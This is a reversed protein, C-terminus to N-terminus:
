SVVVTTQGLSQNTSRYVYYNETYGSANTVSVTQAAEFGGDFGGVKFTCAGYPSRTPCCFYIYQGTGANVTFTKAKTGSLQKNALGTVLASTPNNAVSSVGWYLNPYFHFTVTKSGISTSLTYTVQHTTENDTATVTEGTSSVDKTVNNLKLSSPTAIFTWALAVSASANGIEISAPSLTFTDIDNYNVFQSLADFVSNLETVESSLGGPVTAINTGVAITDGIAIPATVKYITGNLYLYSGVAHASSATSSAETTAISTDLNARATDANAAATNATSAATNANDTALNVLTPDLMVKFYNTDTPLHGSTKTDNWYVYSGNNYLVVDYKEYVVNEGYIGKNVYAVRGLNIQAM